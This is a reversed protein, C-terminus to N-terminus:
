KIDLCMNYLAILAITLWRNSIAKFSLMEHVRSIGACKLFGM